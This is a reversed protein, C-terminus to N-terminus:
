GVAAGGALDGGVQAVGGVGQGKRGGAKVGEGVGQGVGVGEAVRRASVAAVWGAIGGVGTIGWGCAGGGGLVVSRWLLGVVASLGGVGGLVGGGGGAGAAVLVTVGFCVDSRGLGGVGSGRVGALRGLKGGGFLDQAQVLVDLVEEPLIRLNRDARANAAAG